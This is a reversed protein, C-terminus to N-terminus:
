DEPPPLPPTEPPSSAPEQAEGQPMDATTWYGDQSEWEEGDWVWPEGM